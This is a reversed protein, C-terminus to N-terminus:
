SSVSRCRETRSEGAVVEQGRAWQAPGRLESMQVGGQEDGARLTVAPSYLRHVRGQRPRHIAAEPVATTAGSPAPSSLPLPQATGPTLDGAM